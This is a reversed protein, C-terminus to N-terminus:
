AEFSALRLLPRQSTSQLGYFLSMPKLIPRWTLANNEIHTEKEQKNKVCMYTSAQRSRQM